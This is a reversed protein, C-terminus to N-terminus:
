HDIRSLGGVVALHPEAGPDAELVLGAVLHLVADDAGVLEIDGFVEDADVRRYRARQEAFFLSILNQHPTGFPVDNVGDHRDAILLAGRPFWRGAAPPGISAAARD